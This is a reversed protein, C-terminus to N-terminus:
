RFRFDLRFGYLWPVQPKINQACLKQPLNEYHARFQAENPANYYTVLITDEQVRVDGELGRFFDKALHNADWGCVPEGLRLHEPVLLWLGLLTSQVKDALWQRVGRELSAPDCPRKQTRQRTAQTEIEGTGAPRPRCEYLKEKCAM